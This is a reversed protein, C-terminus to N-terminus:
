AVYKINLISRGFLCYSCLNTRNGHILDKLDDPHSMCNYTIKPMEMPDSSQLEVRGRTRPHVLVSLAFLVTPGNESEIM